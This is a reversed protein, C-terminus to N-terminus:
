CLSTCKLALETLNRGWEVEQSTNLYLSRRAAGAVLTKNTWNFICLETVLARHPTVYGCGTLLSSSKNCQTSLIQKTLGHAPNLNTNRELQSTSQCCKLDATVGEWVSESYTVNQTIMVLAFSFPSIILTHLGLDHFATWQEAHQNKGLTNLNINWLQRGKHLTFGCQM